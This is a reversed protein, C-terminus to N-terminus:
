APQKLRAVASNKIQRLPAPLAGAHRLAPRGASATPAGHQVVLMGLKFVSLVQSVISGGQEAELSARAPVVGDLNWFVLAFMMLLGSL